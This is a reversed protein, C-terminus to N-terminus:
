RPMRSAAGTRMAHVFGPQHGFQLFSGAGPARLWAWRPEIRPRRVGDVLAEEFCRDHRHEGEAAHQPTHIRSDHRYPM